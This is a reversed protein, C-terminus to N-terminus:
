WKEDKQTLKKHQLRMFQFVSDIDTLKSQPYGRAKYHKRVKKMSDLAVQMDQAFLDDDKM